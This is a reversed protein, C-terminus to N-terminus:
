QNVREVIELLEHIDHIEFDAGSNETEFLDGYRSFVTKMGVKRAGKIDREAWDGVMIAEDKNVGLQTLAKQFPLSAPKKKGTDEFTVVTDFFHEIRLESLRLWVQLRPADSLVALKLGRRLLEMLTTRVHPYLAMAGEKARRYGVIGASLIKYDIEGQVEQLFKDFIKQDEINDEREYIEQIKKRATERDLDLGTDIMAEVSSAIAEKKMRMFDVLTNDLDFIVAKIMSLPNFPSRPETLNIVTSNLVEVMNGVETESRQNVSAAGWLSREM